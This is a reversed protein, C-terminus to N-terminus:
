RAPLRQPASYTRLEIKLRSDHSQETSVRLTHSGSTVTASGGDVPVRDVEKWNADCIVADQGGSYKISGGAPISHGNM